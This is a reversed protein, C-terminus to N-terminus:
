SPAARRVLTRLRLIREVHRDLEGRRALPVLARIARRAQAPSTFLIMDAGARAAQRAWREVPAARVLSLSDTIAVGRFGLRRLRRYTSPEITARFRTGYFANSVMVCPVGARIAARFPALDRPRVHADVHPRDDTSVAATGLGPFHKVCAADGLGRAFAVGIQGSRFQRWGLPGDPADLVPAFDVDIGAGRLAARTARGASLAQAPTTFASARRWPPSGPLAKVGGGEQDAFRIQAAGSFIRPRETTVVMLQAKQLPTLAMAALLIALAAM